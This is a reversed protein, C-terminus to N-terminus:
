IQSNQPLDDPIFLTTGGPPTILKHLYAVLGQLKNDETINYFYRSTSGGGDVFDLSKDVKGLAESGYGGGRSKIISGRQAGGLKAEPFKNDFDGGLICNAPWRGMSKMREIAANQKDLISQQDEMWPRYFGKGNTKNEPMSGFAKIQSLDETTVIRCKDISLAGVGHKLVNQAVTGELPTRALTAIFSPEGLFLISDRIEFGADEVKQTIRHHELVPCIAVTHAGPKLSEYVKGWDVVEASSLYVCSDYKSM